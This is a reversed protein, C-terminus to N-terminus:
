RVGGWSTALIIPPSNVRGGLHQPVGVSWFPSKFHPSWIRTTLCLDGHVTLLFRWADIPNDPPARELGRGLTREIEPLWICFRRWYQSLLLDLHRIVDDPM